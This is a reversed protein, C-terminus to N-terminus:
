DGRWWIFRREILVLAGYLMGGLAGCVIILLWIRPVQEMYMAQLLLVGLGVTEGFWDGVMAGILSLAIGLKLGVFITPLASPLAYKWFIQFRSAGFSQLLDIKQPDASRLGRLTNVTVPFFTLYFAIVVKALITNGFSIVVVAGFAIVPVTQSAVFIPFLSRELFRVYSFGTGCLFGFAAGAAFGLLTETLTRLFSSALGPAIKWGDALVTQLPPLIRPSIGLVPVVALWILALVLIAMAPSQLFGRITM